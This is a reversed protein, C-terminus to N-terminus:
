LIVLVLGYAAAVTVAAVVMLAGVTLLFDRRQTPTLPKRRRETM